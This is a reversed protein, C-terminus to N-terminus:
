GPYQEQLYDYLTLPELRPERQLMPELEIDWVDSLPDKHTRWTRQAKTTSRHQGKEIRRGSRESIGAITSVQAQTCSQDRARNYVEVKYTEILQGRM